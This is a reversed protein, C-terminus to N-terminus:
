RTMAILDTDTIWQTFTVSGAIVRVAPYVRVAYGTHPPLVAAQSVGFSYREHRAPGNALVSHTLRVALGGGNIQVAYGLDFQTNAPWTLEVHGTFRTSFSIGRCASLSDATYTGESWATSDVLVFGGTVGITPTGLPHNQQLTAAASSHEPPTWLAGSTPDCKLTSNAVPDCSWDDTWPQSGAIPFAALPTAVTGNGQLGCGIELPPDPPVFLGGDTGFAVQNGADTSLRAEVEGTGPTYAAGDRATICTRVDACEVYLGDPGEQLLNSGGGPPAPDLIVDAAVQYPDAATGTGTVTADVTPTDAAELATSAAPTYLGGDGGFVTTNGADASLRASIEGTAPDYAAGDGASFCGRVDACEVYLGDPGTQLLNTGGAPPAADVIVDTTVVYPDGATGTGSVTNNATTTDGAQVVTPAGGGGGTAYLGGDTGFTVVNGADTSPRAAIEGTAPDYTAGDGATFCTRVDACEVYLGDSGENVLNTGGGPPAPDLIVAASVDYPDGATGTGSVTVDISPTDSAQVATSSAPTYLGGDGGIVTANGADGSVRATIEGTVPDYAAGDGASFCGRVDACEVYLGDSGTALLNTGGAPPAPDLIVAASVDYPDGATGTGTLTLDVTPSDTVGLPTPTGADSSITYPNAASGNGTVTTGTGAVVRCNCPSLGCCKAM